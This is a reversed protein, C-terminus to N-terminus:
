LWRGYTGGHARLRDRLDDSEVFAFDAFDFGPGVTCGCLAYRDLPVAAQWCDAPVAFVPEGRASATDLVITEIAAFQPDAVLLQLPGGEYLHWVEDSRVRHWRSFAGSPLLFYITTLASRLPRRDAPQVQRPSRFLERFYGGEPHPQLDLRAILEVVRSELAPDPRTM